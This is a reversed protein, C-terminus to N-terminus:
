NCCTYKRQISFSGDLINTNYSDNILILGSINAAPIGSNPLLPIGSICIGSLISSPNFCCNILGSSYGTMNIDITKPQDSGLRQIIPGGSRGPVIFEAIRPIPDNETISISRIPTNDLCSINSNFTTTYSITGDGYSHNVSHNSSKPFGPTSIGLASNDINLLTKFDQVLDDGSSIKNYAELASNYKTTTNINDKTLLLRGNQPLEIASPSNILGGPILGEINGNVVINISSTPKTTTTKNVTFTHISNPTSVTSTHIRKIKASYSASFTGASESTTCQIQENFINYDASLLNVIGNNSTSTQHITSINLSPSCGDNSTNSKNLINSILSTVSSYLRDQVFNKAQEWAPLVKDDKFFLKGDASIDYKIDISDNHIGNYKSHMMDNNMEFSWGDTFNSIKYKSMDILASNYSGGQYILGECSINQNLDCGFYEIENFTFEATFPATETWLNNSQDINFSKLIGGRAKIIEADSGDTAVLTGGNFHLIKSIQDIRGALSEITNSVPTTKTLDLTTIFGTLTVNYDYGILSDNAYNFNTSISILPAPVIRNGDSIVTNPPGYFVKAAPSYSM